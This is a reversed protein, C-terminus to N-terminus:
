GFNKGGRKRIQAAEIENVGATVLRNVPDLPGVFNNLHQFDDPQRKLTCVLILFCDTTLLQSAGLARKPRLLLGDM